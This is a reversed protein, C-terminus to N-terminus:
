RFPDFDDYIVQEEKPEVLKLEEKAIKEVRELSLLSSKITELKKVEERLHLAEKELEGIEYGLRIIETQHWLYLTLILTTLLVCSIGVAIDKKSYKKRVM